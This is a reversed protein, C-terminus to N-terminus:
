GRGREPESRYRIRAVRVLLDWSTGAANALCCSPWRSWARSTTRSARCCCSGSRSPAPTVSPLPVILRRRFLAVSFEAHEARPGAADTSDHGRLFPAATVVLMAGTVRMSQHPILMTLSLVMVFLFSSLTNARSRRWTSRRRACWPTSTSRSRWSCSGPSPDGRGHRGDPLVGALRRGGRVLDGRPGAGLMAWAM